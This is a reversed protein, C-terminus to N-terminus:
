ENKVPREVITPVGHIYKITLSEEGKKKREDLEGRLENAARQSRDNLEGIIAETGSGVVGGEMGKMRQELVNIKSESDKLRPELSCVKSNLTKIDERIPAIDEVKLCDVKSILHDM